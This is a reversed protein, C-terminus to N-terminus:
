KTQSMSTDVFSVGTAREATPCFYSYYILSTVPQGQRMFTGGAFTRGAYLLGAGRHRVCVMGALACDEKGLM